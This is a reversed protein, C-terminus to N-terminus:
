PGKLTCASISLVSCTRHPQKSWVFERRRALCAIDCCTRCHQCASTAHFHRRPPISLPMMSTPRPTKCPTGPPCIARCPVVQAHTFKCQPLFAESHLVGAAQQAACWSIVTMWQKRGRPLRQKALVLPQLWGALHRVGGEMMSQRKAAVAHGV